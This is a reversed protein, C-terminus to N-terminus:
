QISANVNFIKIPYKVYHKEIASFLYYIPKGFKASLMGPFFEHSDFLIPTKKRSIWVAPPLAVVNNAQIVDIELRHFFIWIFIWYYIYKILPIRPVWIREIYFRENIKEFRPLSNNYRVGIIKISLDPYKSQLYLGERNLRPDPNCESVHLMLLRM